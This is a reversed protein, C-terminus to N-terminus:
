RWGSVDCALVSVATDFRLDAGAQTAWAVHAAVCAEPFLMGAPEEFVAVEDDRPATAPFRRRLAAADLLEHTM